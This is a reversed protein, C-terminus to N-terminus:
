DPRTLKSLSSSKSVLCCFSTRGRPQANEQRRRGQVRVSTHAKYTANANCTDEATVTSLKERKKVSTFPAWNRGM